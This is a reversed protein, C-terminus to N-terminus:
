SSPRREDRIGAAGRALNGLGARPPKSSLLRSAVTEPDRFAGAQDAFRISDMFSADSGEFRTKTTFVVCVNFYTAIFALGLYTIFIAGYQLIGMGTDGWKLLVTPFLLALSYLLSFVGALVPFLLMEKDQRIVSFSLKTLQWSREFVSFMGFCHCVIM